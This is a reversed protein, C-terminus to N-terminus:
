SEQELIYFSIRLILREKSNELDIDAIKGIRELRYFLTSRHIFLAKATQLVNRELELYIKLTNYFDTNNKTDYQKLILLKQSCLLEPPLSESSKKLLFELIYDDFHHCWIMSSSNQGLNLAACAQLHGQPIQFFDHIESSVGMELLGERLLLSLRRIIDSSSSHSYSLNVIVTFGNEYILAHGEPIQTQIHGLAAASSVMQIDQRKAELRLCLYRDMRKWNLYNLYNLIRAQDLNKGDLYDQFFQPLDNQMSLRFLSGKKIFSLIMRSLYAIAPYQGPMIPTELEDVCIRGEYVGDNWLNMFLIPYGRQEASFLSPTRTKLTNLYEVDVKFDNILSLPIINWGTRPDQDWVLMNPVRHSWALVYFNTDHVFIPNQFIPVSVKLMETLPEESDSALHLLYDWQHYKTFIDQVRETVALLSANEIVIVASNEPIDLGESPGVFIWHLIRSAGQSSCGSFLAKRADPDRSDALYVYSSTTELGKYYLRLNDLCTFDTKSFFLMQPYHELMNDYLIQMSLQFHMSKSELFNFQSSM